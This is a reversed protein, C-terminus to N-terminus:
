FVLFTSEGLESFGAVGLVWAPLKDHRRLIYTVTHLQQGGSINHREGVIVYHAKHGSYASDDIEILDGISADRVLAAHTASKGAAVTISAVRIALTGFEYILQKAFGEATAAVQIETEYNRPRKGYEQMSEWNNEIFTDQEYEFLPTGRIQVQTVEIDDSTGNMLSLTSSTAGIESTITLQGSTTTIDVGQVPDIVDKAAVRTKPNDPDIYRLRVKREDGARITFPVGTFDALTSGATGVSKPRYAVTVMNAIDDGGGMEIQDIDEATLTAKTNGAIDTALEIDHWRNHFVFTGDRSWFFRGGAEQQVLSQIVMMAPVSQREDSTVTGAYLLTEKGIEFDILSNYAHLRTNIGLLSMGIIWYSQECPYSVVGSDFITTLAEDVRVDTQLPAEYDARQLTAMLDECRITMFINDRRKSGFHPQFNVVRGVWLTQTTGDYTMRVRVLMGPKVAEYYAATARQVDFDGTDNMLQVTLMSPSAVDQYPMGMGLSFALTYSAETIDDLSDAFTGDQQTDIQVTYTIDVM